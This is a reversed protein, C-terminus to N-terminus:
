KKEVHHNKVIEIVGNFKERCADIFAEGKYASDPWIKRVTNVISFRKVISSGPAKIKM